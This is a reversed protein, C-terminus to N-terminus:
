TAAVHGTGTRAVLRVSLGLLRLRLRPRPQRALILVSSPRWLTAPRRALPRTRRVAQPRKAGAPRHRHDPDFRKEWSHGNGAGPPPVRARRIRGRSGAPGACPRGATRAANRRSRFLTTYPFLTDTRTSRPPRRIM